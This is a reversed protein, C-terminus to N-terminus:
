NINGLRKYIAKLFYFFFYLWKEVNRKKKRKYILSLKLVFNIEEFFFFAYLNFQSKLKEYKLNEYSKITYLKIM